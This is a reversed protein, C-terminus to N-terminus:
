AAQAEADALSGDAKAWQYACEVGVELAARIVPRDFPDIIGTNTNDDIFKAALRIAEKRKEGGELGAKKALDLVIAKLQNQNM